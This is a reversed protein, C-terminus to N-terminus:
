HSLSVPSIELCGETYQLLIDTQTHTHTHSALERLFEPFWVSVDEFNEATLVSLQGIKEKGGSETERFRTVFRSVAIKNPSCRSVTQSLTRAVKCVAAQYLM